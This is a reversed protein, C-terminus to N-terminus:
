NGRITTGGAALEVVNSAASQPLIGFHEVYGIWELVVPEPVRCACHTIIIESGGPLPRWAHEAISNM